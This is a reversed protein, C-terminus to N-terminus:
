LDLNEAIKISKIVDLLDNIGIAQIREDLPYSQSGPYVVYLHYLNLDKQATLMSKTRTPADTFKIEFGLRKGSRFMLMDLEAGAHTAWFYAEGSKLHGLIQEIIFGEWSACLKPHSFITSGPLNLLAHLIGSDRIYVKPSKVQRKKLNEYWPQLQRVVYADTLLDLYKRATPETVSISRAFESGNWIQGHYHATMTWFRRLAAAPIRIGMQPIDRELFSRLFNERWSHSKEENEALYSLPFSGRQWLKQWNEVGLDQLDFGGMDIFSIRGALSESAKKTIGPSASGLILFKRNKSSRDALVRLIPFIEPARQVEDLVILGEKSELFTMPSQTISAYDAPNELDIFVNQRQDSIIRAITTKGCQRPGLLATIPNSEISALIRKKLVTRPVM